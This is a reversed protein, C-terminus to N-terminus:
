REQAIFLYDVTATKANTAEGQKLSIVPALNANPLYTSSADIYGTVTGNVAYYLRDVGDYFAALEIFTDDAMTAIASASSSGTSNDKRFYVNVTAAGDAKLFFIGDTATALTCGDVMANQLGIAIESQLTENVKFRCKLFLKKGAVPAFNAIANQIQNIDNDTTTNTLLMLGGDGAALAQTAGGATETVTWDGAAYTDFDEFFTHYLTPDPVKLENFIDGVAVNTIGNPFRTVLNRTLPM